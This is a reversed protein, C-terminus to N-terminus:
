IRKEGDPLRGSEAKVTKISVTADSQEASVKNIAASIKNADSGIM